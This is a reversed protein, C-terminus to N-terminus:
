FYDIQRSFSGLTQLTFYKGIFFANKKKRYHFLICDEHRFALLYTEKGFATLFCVVFGGTVNIIGCETHSPSCM